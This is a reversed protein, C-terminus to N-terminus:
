RVSPNQLVEPPMNRLTPLRGDALNWVAPSFNATNQWWAASYWDTATINAGNLSVAESVITQAPTLTMDNRAHNYM